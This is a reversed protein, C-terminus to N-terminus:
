MITNIGQTSMSHLVIKKRPVYTRFLESFYALVNTLGTGLFFTVVGDKSKTKKIKEVASLKVDVISPM